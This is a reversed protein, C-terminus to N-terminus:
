HVEASETTSSGISFRCEFISFLGRRKVFGIKRGYCRDGLKSKVSCVKFKM